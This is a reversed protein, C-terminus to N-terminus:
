VTAGGFLIDLSEDSEAIEAQSEVHEIDRLFVREGFFGLRYEDFKWAIEAAPGGGAAYM